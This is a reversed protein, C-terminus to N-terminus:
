RSSERYGFRSTDPGPNRDGIHRQLVTTKRTRMVADVLGTLERITSGSFMGEREKWEQNRQAGIQDQDTM